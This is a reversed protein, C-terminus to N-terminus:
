VPHEGAVVETGPGGARGGLRGEARPEPLWSLWPVSAQVWMGRGARGRWLLWLPVSIEAGPPWTDEQPTRRHASLRQLHRMTAAFWAAAQLHHPVSGVETGALEIIERELSVLNAAAQAMEAAALELANADGQIGAGRWRRHSCWPPLRSESQLSVHWMHHWVVVTFVRRPHVGAIHFPLM